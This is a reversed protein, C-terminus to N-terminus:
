YFRFSASPNIVTQVLVLKGEYCYVKGPRHGLMWDIVGYIGPSLSKGVKDLFPETVKDGDGEGHGGGGRGEAKTKTM